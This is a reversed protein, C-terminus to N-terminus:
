HPSLTNYACNKVKSIQNENRTHRYWFQIRQAANLQYRNIEENVLEHIYDVVAERTVSTENDNRATLSLLGQKEFAPKGNNDKYVVLTSDWPKGLYPNSTSRNQPHPHTLIERAQQVCELIGQKELQEEVKDFFDKSIIAKLAKIADSPKLEAISDFMQRFTGEIINKQTANIPKKAKESAIPPTGLGVLPQSPSPLISLPHNQQRQAIVSNILAEGEEELLLDYFNILPATTETEEPLADHESDLFGRLINRIENRACYSECVEQAFDPAIYHHQKLINMAEIIEQPSDTAALIQMNDSSTQMNDSSPFYIINPNQFLAEIENLATRPLKFTLLTRSENLYVHIEKILTDLPGSYIFTRTPFSSIM